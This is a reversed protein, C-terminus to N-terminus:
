IIYFNRFCRVKIPKVLHDAAKRELRPPLLNECCLYLNNGHQNTSFLNSGFLATAQHAIRSQSALRSVSCHLLSVRAVASAGVDGPHACHVCVQPIPETHEGRSANRPYLQGYALCFVLHFYVITRHHLSAMSRECKISHAEVSLFHLASQRGVPISPCLHVSTSPLGFHDDGTLHNPVNKRM